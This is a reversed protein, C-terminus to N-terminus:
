IREYDTWVRKKSNRSEIGLRKRAKRRRNKEEYTKSYQYAIAPELPEGYKKIQYNTIDVYLKTIQEQTLSYDKVLNKFSKTGGLAKNKFLEYLVNM